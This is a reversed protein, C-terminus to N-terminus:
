SVSYCYTLLASVTVSVSVAIIQIFYGGIAAIASTSTTPSWLDGDETVTCLSLIDGYPM